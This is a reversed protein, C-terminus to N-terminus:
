IIESLIPLMYFGLGIHPVFQCVYQRQKCVHMTKIRNDTPYLQLGLDLLTIAHNIHTVPVMITVLDNMTIKSTDHVNNTAKRVLM